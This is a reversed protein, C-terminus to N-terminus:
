KHKFELKKKDLDLIWTLLLGMLGGAGNMLVDRFEYVRNPLIYQIGEDGWGLLFILVFSLMYAKVGKLDVSLARYILVGLIGYEFFHIKEETLKFQWIIVAYILIAIVLLHTTITKKILNSKKNSYILYFALLVVAIIFINGAIHFYPMNERLFAAIPRM